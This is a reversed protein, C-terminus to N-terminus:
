RYMQSLRLQNEQSEADMEPRKKLMRQLALAGAAGGLASATKPHAMASSKAMGYAQKGADGIHKGAGKIKLILALIEKENM